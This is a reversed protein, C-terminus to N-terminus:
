QEEPGGLKLCDEFEEDFVSVGPHTTQDRALQILGCLAYFMTESSVRLESTEINITKELSAVSALLEAFQVRLHALESQTSSLPTMLEDCRKEMLVAACKALFATERAIQVDREQDGRAGDAQTYRRQMELVTVELAALRQSSPNPSTVAGMGMTPDMRDNYGALNSGLSTMSHSTPQRFQSSSQYPSSQVPANFLPQSQPRPMMDAPALNNTYHSM